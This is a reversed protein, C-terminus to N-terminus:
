GMVRYCVAPALLFDARLMDAIADRVAQASAEHTMLVLPVGNESREKQMAQAISVGHDALAGSLDRLVGPNDKVM